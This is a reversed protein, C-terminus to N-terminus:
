RILAEFLEKFEVRANSISKYHITLDPLEQLGEVTVLEKNEEYIGLLKMENVVINKDYYNFSDFRTTDVNFKDFIINMLRTEIEEFAPIQVKIPYIVDGIYTECADHLIALRALDAQGNTFLYKALESCHQAVSYHTKVRGGYRCINPLALIIDEATIDEATLNLVDIAKGNSNIIKGM